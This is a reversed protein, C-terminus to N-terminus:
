VATRLIYIIVAIVPTLVLLVAGVASILPRPKSSLRRYQVEADYIYRNNM